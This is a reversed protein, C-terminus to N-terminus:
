PTQSPCSMHFARLLCFYMCFELRSVRLSSAHSPTPASPRNVDCYLRLFPTPSHDPRSGNSHSRRDTQRGGRSATRHVSVDHCNPQLIRCQSSINCFELRGVRFVGVSRPHPVGVHFVSRIKHHTQTQTQSSLRRRHTNHKPVV